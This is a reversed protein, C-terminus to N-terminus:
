TALINRSANVLEFNLLKRLRARECLKIWVITCLSLLYQVPVYPPPSSVAEFLQRSFSSSSTFSSCSSSGYRLRRVTQSLQSSPVLPPVNPVTFFPLWPPLSVSRRLSIRHPHPVPDVFIRNEFTDFPKLSSGTRHPAAHFRRHGSRAM